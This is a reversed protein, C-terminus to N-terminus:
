YEGRLSGDFRPFFAPALERGTMKRRNNSKPPCSKWGTAMPTSSSIFVWPPIKMASAAWKRMSSTPLKLTMPRSLVFMPKECNLKPLTGKEYDFLYYFRDTEVLFGSHHIYTVRMNDEEMQNLLIDELFHYYLFFRIDVSSFGTEIWRNV